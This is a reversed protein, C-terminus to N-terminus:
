FFWFSRRERELEGRCQNLQAGYTKAQQDVKRAVQRLWPKARYTNRSFGGRGEHYALYQNYADWKSIGLQQQTGAVYWGIFMIADGFDDRSGSSGMSREFDSWAPPQAQAYGYSPSVRGWPIVWLLYARPPLADAVFSSEQKMIAMAIHPPTGWKSEM